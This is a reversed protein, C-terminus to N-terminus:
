RGWGAFLDRRPNRPAHRMWRRLDRRRQKNTRAALLATNLVKLGATAQMVAWTARELADGLRLATTERLQLAAFERFPPQNM